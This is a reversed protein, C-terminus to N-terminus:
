EGATVESEFKYKVKIGRDSFVDIREILRDILEATIGGTEANGALESLERYDAVQKELERQGSELEGARDLNAKSKAEYSERMERYEAANILGSVLSEYLSKLMREGKANEQKLAALETKVAARNLEVAENNLRLKVSKGLVAEAYKQISTLLAPILECEPLNFVECSGRAKRSNSLCHFIYVDDSKRRASKQRHLPMGCHGCFIKGRFMNPTYPNVTRANADEAVQKRYEQIAAFMERSILPEHTNQVTIWKEPPVDYQKHNLSTQKGQVMDGIYAEEELIRSVAFTQWSNNSRLNRFNIIGKRQSYINPPEIGMENLRRTIANLGAKEYAWRFILKAVEAAEPDVILKHCNDPAKVYGYPPRAGVFEGSKM